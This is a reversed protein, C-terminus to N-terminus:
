KNGCVGVAVLGENNQRIILIRLLLEVVFLRMLIMFILVLIIVWPYLIAFLPLYVTGVCWGFTWCRVLLVVIYITFVGKSASHCVFWLRDCWSVDSSEEEQQKAWPPKETLGNCNTMEQILFVLRKPDLVSPAFGGKGGTEDSYPRSKLAELTLEGQGEAERVRTMYKSWNKYFDADHAKRFNLYDNYVLMLVFQDVYRRWQSSTGSQLMSFMLTRLLTSLGIHRSFEKVFIEQVEALDEISSYITRYLLYLTFVLKFMRGIFQLAGTDLTRFAPPGMILATSAAGLISTILIMWYPQKVPLKLFEDIEEVRPGKQYVYTLGCFIFALPLAFSCFHGFVIITVYVCCRSERAQCAEVAQQFSTQTQRAGGILSLLFHAFCSFGRRGTEAFSNLSRLTAVPKTSRAERVDTAEDSTAISVRRERVGDTLTHNNSTKLAGRIHQGSSGSVPRCNACPPCPLPGDVIRKRMINSDDDHDDHALPPMWFSSLKSEGPVHESVLSQDNKDLEEQEPSDEQVEVQDLSAQDSRSGHDANKRKRKVKRRGRKITGKRGARLDSRAPAIQEESAGIAVRNSKQTIEQSGCDGEDHCATGTLFQM